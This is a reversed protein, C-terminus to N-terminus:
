LKPLCLEARTSSLLFHKVRQPIFHLARVKTPLPSFLGSQSELDSTGSFRMLLAVITLIHQPFPPTHACSFSLSRLLTAWFLVGTVM